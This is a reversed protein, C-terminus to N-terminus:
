YFTAAYKFYMILLTIFIYDKMNYLTVRMLSFYELFLFNNNFYKEYIGVFHVISYMFNWEHYNKNVKRFELLFSFLYLFIKGLVSSDNFYSHFAAKTYSFLQLFIDM